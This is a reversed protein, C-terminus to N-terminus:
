GEPSPTLAPMGEVSIDDSYIPSLNGSTDRFQVRIYFGTWNIPIRYTFSKEETYPEWNLSNFDQNINVYSGTTYRMEKVPADIGIAIFKVMIDIEDGATGGVCCKGQEIEVLGGVLDSPSTTPIFVVTSIAPGRTALYAIQTGYFANQTSMLSLQTAMAQLLESQPAIQTELAAISAQVLPAIPKVPPQADIREVSLLSCANLTIVLLSLCIVRVSSPLSLNM